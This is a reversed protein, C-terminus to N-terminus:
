WLGLVMGIIVVPIGLLIYKVMGSSMNSFKIIVVLLFIIAFSLLIFKFYTTEPVFGWSIILDSMSKEAGALIKQPISLDGLAEWDITNNSEITENMATTNNM